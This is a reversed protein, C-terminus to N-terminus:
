LTRRFALTNNGDWLPVYINQNDYYSSINITNKKTKNEEIAEIANSLLSSITFEIDNKIYSINPLNNNFETNININNNKIIENYDNTTKFLINKITANIDEQNEKYSKGVDLHM